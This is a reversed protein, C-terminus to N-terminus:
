NRSRQAGPGTRGGRAEAAALSARNPVYGCTCLEPLVVLAAGQGVALEVLRAARELNAEIQGPLSRAQVAALRITVHSSATM